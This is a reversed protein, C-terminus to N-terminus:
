PELFDIDTMAAIRTLDEEYALTMEEVAAASWDSGYGTLDLEEEVKEPLAFKDLFAQIVQNRQAPNLGPRATIYQRYREMGEPAMIESLMDDAGKLAPADTALGALSLLLDSWILPTDENAWVILHVNPCINRIRRIFESWYLERVNIGHLVSSPDSDGSRQVLAPIFTAPNRLAIHFEVQEAPLLNELVPLRREALAYLRDYQLVRQPVCIFNEASLVLRQINDEDVISDLLAVQSAASPLKGDLANQTERILKRYRGPGPVIVGEAHLRDQNVLLCRLLRDEDTAHAGIHYAVQM